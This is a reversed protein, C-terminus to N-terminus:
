KEKQAALSPGELKTTLYLLFVGTLGGFILGPSMMFFSYGFVFLSIGLYIPIEFSEGLMLNFCFIFSGILFSLLTIIFGYGFANTYSGYVKRISYIKPSIIYSAFSASVSASLTGIILESNLNLFNDGSLSVFSFWVLLGAISFLLVGLARNKNM